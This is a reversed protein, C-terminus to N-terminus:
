RVMCAGFVVIAFGDGSASLSMKGTEEDIVMTWGMGDRVGKIGDDAGQLILKGDLHEVREIPTKSGNGKIVKGKVNVNFFDPLNIDGPAVHTCHKGLVCENVSRTACILSKSGDFAAAMVVSSLGALCTFLVARIVSNM